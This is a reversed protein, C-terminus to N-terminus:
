VHVLVTYMISFSSTKILSTLLLPSLIGFVGFPAFMRHKSLLNFFERTGKVERVSYNHKEYAQMNMYRTIESEFKSDLKRCKRGVSTNEFFGRSPSASFKNKQQLKDIYYCVADDVDLGATTSLRKDKNHYESSEVMRNNEELNDDDRKEFLSGTSDFTRSETIEQSRNSDDNNAGEQFISEMSDANASKHVKDKNNFIDDAGNEFISDMSDFLMSSSFGQDVDNGHNSRGELVSEMSSFRMSGGFKVTGEDEDFNNLNSSENSTDVNGRDMTSKSKKRSSARPSSRRSRSDSSDNYKTVDSRDQLYTEDNEDVSGICQQRFLSNNQQLLTEVNTEGM